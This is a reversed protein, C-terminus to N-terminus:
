DITQFYGNENAFINYCGFTNNNIKDIFVHKDNAAM